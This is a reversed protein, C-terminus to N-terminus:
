FEGTKKVTLKNQRVNKQHYLKKIPNKKIIIKSCSVVPCNYNEIMINKSDTIFTNKVNLIDVIINNGWLQLM